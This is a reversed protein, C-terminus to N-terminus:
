WNIIVHTCIFFPKTENCFFFFFNYYLRVPWLCGLGHTNYSAYWTAHRRDQLGRGNMNNLLGVGVCYCTTKMKKKIRADCRCSLFLFISEAIHDFKIICMHTCRRIHLYFIHSHMMHISSYRRTVQWAAAVAAAACVM